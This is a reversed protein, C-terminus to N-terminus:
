LPRKWLYGKYTKSSEWKGKNIRGGRCCTAVSSPNFGYAKTEGASDYQHLVEGTISDIQDVRKGQIKKFEIRALDNNCKICCPEVNDITHPKSNDLRNCGLKHWDTEGCHPCHKTFINDIIWQATLTCEGRNYKKDNARYAGLLNKARGKQTNLYKENYEKQTKRMM